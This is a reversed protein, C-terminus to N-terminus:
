EANNALQPDKQKCKFLSRIMNHKKREAIIIRAIKNKYMQVVPPKTFELYFLLM